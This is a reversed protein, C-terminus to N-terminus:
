RLTPASHLITVMPCRSPCISLPLFVDLGEEGISAIEGEGAMVGDEGGM